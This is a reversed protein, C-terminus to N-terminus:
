NGVFAGDAFLFLIYITKRYMIVVVYISTKLSSLLIKVQAQTM